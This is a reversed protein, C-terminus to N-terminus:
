GALFSTSGQGGLDSVKAGQGNIVHNISTGTKGDLWVTVMHYMNVGGPKTPPTSIANELQVNPTQFNCYVGLGKATHSKVNDAVKYSPFGNEGSLQVWRGQVPVDYPCESQYFYVSGNNGNWLTQYKEFHEVFLGYATINDGNVTLGNDSPNIDWGTWSTTNTNDPGHDARWLWVNDLLVNHSNITICNQTTATPTAGGVRCSIDFLATPNASHDAKSGPPGIILLSPSRKPGADFLIGSISVGPIDAIRMAPNNTTPVLTAFGLGLICTNPHNVELCSALPYIGPTLILHYGEQLKLNLITANNANNPQPKAIYFKNIPISPPSPKQPGAWTPGQTNRALAPVKVSYSGDNSIILYPKERIVPTQPIVTFPEKGTGLGWVGESPQQLDGVFVMNWIGDGWSGVNTNRTLFQQQTRSVIQTDVVSDAIFGGSSFNANTGDFHFDSLFLVGKIHTRRMFTAQSVAWLNINENKPTTPNNNDLPMIALNEVGRWFNNLATGQAGQGTSQVGGGNITVDDPSSGLGHVTTYYGIEVTLNNYVGPKFFFAYRATGFQNTKQANLINQTWTQITATSPDFILVNPGFDVPEPNTPAPRIPKQGGQHINTDAM